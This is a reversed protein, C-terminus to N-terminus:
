GKPREWIAIRNRDKDYIFFYREGDPGDLIEEPFAGKQRLAERAKQIDEVELAVVAGRQSGGGSSRLAFRSDGAKLWVVQTSKQGEVELGLVGEYFSLASVVDSVEYYAHGIGIIAIQEESPKEPEQPAEASEVKAEEPEQLAEASEVKAEEPEQPAEASEVKAEHAKASEQVLAETATLFEGSPTASLSFTEAAVPEKEAVPSTEESARVEVHHYAAEAAAEREEAESAARSQEPLATVSGSTGQAAGEAVGKLDNPIPPAEPILPESPPPAIVFQRKKEGAEESAVKAEESASPMQSAAEGAAESAVVRADSEGSGSAGAQESVAPSPSADAPETRVAAPAEGPGAIEIVSQQHTPSPEVVPPASPAPPSGVSRSPPIPVGPPPAPTPPLPVGPAVSPPPPSAQPVPPPPPAVPQYPTPQPEGKVARVQAAVQSVWYDVNDVAFQYDQGGAVIRIPTKLGTQLVRGVEVEGRGVFDVTNLALSLNQMGLAAEPPAPQFVLWEKMLWLHGQVERAGRPLYQAPGSSLVDHSAESM